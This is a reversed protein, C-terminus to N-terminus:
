LAVEKDTMILYGQKQHLPTLIVGVRYKQGSKFSSINVRAIFGCNRYDIADNMKRSVDIRDIAKTPISYVNNQRDVLVVLNNNYVARFTGIAYNTYKYTVGKNIAWGYVVLQHNMVGSSEIYVKLDNKYHNTYRDPNIKHTISNNVHYISIVVLAMIICVGLAIFSKRRM